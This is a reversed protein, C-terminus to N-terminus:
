GQFTETEILDIRRGLTKDRFLELLVRYRKRQDPIPIWLDYGGRDSCGQPAITMAAARDQGPVVAGVSGRSDVQFLSWTVPLEKGRYGSTEFDFRIEAGVPNQEKAAAAFTSGDRVLHDRFGVGPFVPAAIFSASSGFCPKLSPALVFLVTVVGATLGVITGLGGVVKMPSLHWWKATDRGTPEAASSPM